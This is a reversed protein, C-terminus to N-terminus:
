FASQSATYTWGFVSTNAGVTATSASEITTVNDTFKADNGEAGEVIDALAVGAPLVIEWDSFTLADAALETVSDEDKFRLTTNEGFGYALVNNLNAILGDRCDTFHENAADGILTINTMTYGNTSTGEPGDLELASGSESTQIVLANDMTGSWAQDADLGDDGHAWTIFNKGNVTGGFWEFGDDANAVVELNEMVTGTGVGGMTIGNIENDSGITIGGHRVSIYKYSGSNDDAIDGGYQGYPENAAIGEIQATGVNGSVSIPARGLIILGGWLGTDNQDLNTGAAQGVEINDLVSTMIIPASATGNAIIKGGQDVVLASALSELGQGGKIITGPEITLTVGENVVVKGDLEYINDSTWTENATLIGTKVINENEDGGGDDTTNDDDSSCNFAVLSFALLFLLNKITKM